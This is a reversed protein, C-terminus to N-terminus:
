SKNLFADLNMIVNASNILAALEADISVLGPVSLGTVLEDVAAPNSQYHTLTKDYFASLGDLQAESPPYAMALQFGHSLRDLAETGGELQMRLALGAAAEMYVIDNLSVLAQLPTNTRIRRSVCYERSPTDFTTMSPYPSSRRWFTYLARRYRNEDEPTEWRLVGRIVQWTGEPQPPMVGPGYMTDSLLGGVALAQDRIQEASLRYRPGRALLRNKPDLEVLDATVASEQRYTASMVIHRILSKTSWQFEHQYQLALWDLLAPHSPAEGQSGFDELTEVIGIGFLQEWFRNVMVRATLPNDDQVLWQALDLRNAPATAELSPLSAPVDAAMTDGHVLWNGREFFRTVRSSDPPLDQMIPTRPPAARRMAAPEVCEAEINHAALENWAAELTAATEVFDTDCQADLAALQQRAAPEYQSHYATLVPKEHPKDEDRTNNFFAYATYYDEHKFPDYPHSHCQVCAMTTGQWIEYTTNVRDMVAAVRFEEDDTGGEDNSMTNRHFATAILQDKTPEPLLDGALQEITFEDFPLDRNFADVVWDRYAWIIRRPDKQYGQSDGYRALDLWMSAWREGFHPSALLRDVVKAYADPSTDDVFAQVDDLSPPLGILDLSLRRILVERRAEPSPSLREERLRDLVFADIGNQVWESSTTPPTLSPDPSIYAWHTEWEAGQKIWRKLTKIDEDRLPEHDLPMREDPDTHEIRRILESEEPDGPVIALLGSEGPEMAEEQFLLSFGGSQKVGGHCAICQDNIIPRVDRNFRVPEARWLPQVLMGTTVLAAVFLSATLIPRNFRPMPLVVQLLGTPLITTVFKLNSRKRFFMRRRQIAGGSASARVSSCNRHLRKRERTRQLLEPPATQARAYAPATGTSGNASARVSSCNWHLRKRERTRQLLELPATQARAYAPATGTSGNTSARVSSCTRSVLNDCRSIKSKGPGGQNTM